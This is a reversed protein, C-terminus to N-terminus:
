IKSNHNNQNVARECIQLYKERLEETPCNLLEDMSKLAALTGRVRDRGFSDFIATSYQALKYRGFRKLMKRAKSGPPSYKCIIYARNFLLLFGLQFGKARRSPAKYHYIHADHAGVLLKEHLVKFSADADEYAAYGAYKGLEENFGYKRILETRFSMRFGGMFEVLASDIDRLCDPFPRVNRRSRGHVWLPDPCFKNDFKHRLGGMKQRIRDSIKMRYVNRATIDINPPPQATERGCVGGIDGNTDQEYINMIAEGVGPWWLSDDDPFMVIPSKVRELGVNRQHASNPQARLIDLEIPFDVVTQRVSQRVKEHTDDDSADVVILRQPPREQRLILPISVRLVSPRNRTAIVIDYDM